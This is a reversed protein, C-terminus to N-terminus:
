IAVLDLAGDLVGATRAARLEALPEPRVAVSGYLGLVADVADRVYTDRTKGLRGRLVDGALVVEVARWAGACARRVAAELQPPITGEPPPTFVAAALASLATM